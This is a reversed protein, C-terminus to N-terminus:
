SPSKLLGQIRHNRVTGAAIPTLLPGVGLGYAVAANSSVSDVPGHIVGGQAPVRARVACSVRRTSVARRGRAGQHVAQHQLRFSRSLQSERCTRRLTKASPWCRALPTSRPRPNPMPSARSADDDGTRAGHIRGEVGRVRERLSAFLAVCPVRVVGRSRPRCACRRGLRRARHRRPRCARRRSRGRRAERRLGRARGSRPRRRSRSRKVSPRTTSQLQLDLGGLPGRQELVPAVVCGDIVLQPGAAIRM